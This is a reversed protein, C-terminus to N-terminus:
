FTQERANHLLKPASVRLGLKAHSACDYHHDSIPMLDVRFPILIDLQCFINELGGLSTWSCSHWQYINERDALTRM